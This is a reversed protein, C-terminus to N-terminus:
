SSRQLFAIYAHNFENPFEWMCGHGGKTTTWQAGEVLGHLERSLLVPILIDEEGAIVLVRGKRVGGLVKGQGSLTELQAVTDFTQIVNLQALYTATDMDLAEMAAEFERVEAERTLFFPVTFAWLLVDRMVAKVSMHQAMDSWLAFMRTCFPSPRAYTCALTLSLIQPNKITTGAVSTSSADPAAENAYALAYAQAIMGGM